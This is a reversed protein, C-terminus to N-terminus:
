HYVCVCVVWSREFSNFIIMKHRSVKSKHVHQHQYETDFEPESFYSQLYFSVFPFGNLTWGELAVIISSLAKLNVWKIRIGIAALMKHCHSRYVLEVPWHKRHRWKTQNLCVFCLVIEFKGLIHDLSFLTFCGSCFVLLLLCLFSIFHIFWSFCIAFVRPCTNWCCPFTFCWNYELFFFYIKGNQKPKANALMIWLYYIFMFIGLLYLCHVCCVPFRNRSYLLEYVCAASESCIYLRCVCFSYSYTIYACLYLYFINGHTWGVECGGIWLVYRQQCRSHINECETRGFLGHNISTPVITRVTRACYRDIHDWKTTPGEENGIPITFISIRYIPEHTHPHSPPKSFKSFYILLYVSTWAM